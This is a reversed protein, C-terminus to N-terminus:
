KRYPFFRIRPSPLVSPVLNPIEASPPLPGMILKQAFVVFTDIEIEPKNM